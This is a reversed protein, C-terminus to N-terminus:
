RLWEYYKGLFNRSSERNGSCAHRSLKRVQAEFDGPLADLELLHAISTTAEFAPWNIFKDDQWLSRYNWVRKLRGRLVQVAKPHKTLGIAQGLNSGGGIKAGALARNLFDFAEQKPLYSAINQAIASWQGHDGHKMVFRLMRPFDAQEHLWCCEQSFDTREQAPLTPWIRKLEVLTIKASGDMFRSIMTGRKRKKNEYFRSFRTEKVLPMRVSDLIVATPYEPGYLQKLQKPNM